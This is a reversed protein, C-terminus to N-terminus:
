HGIELGEAAREPFGDDPEAEEGERDEKEYDKGVVEVVAPLFLFAEKALLPGLLDVVFLDLLSLPRTVFCARLGRREEGM